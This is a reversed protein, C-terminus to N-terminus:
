YVILYKILYAFYNILYTYFQIFSVIFCFVWIIGILTPIFFGFILNPSVTSINNKGIIPLKTLIVPNKMQNTKVGHLYRNRAKFIDLDKDNKEKKPYWYDTDEEILGISSRWFNSADLTRNIIFYQFITIVLGVISLILKFGIISIDVKQTQTSILIFSAFLISNFLLFNNTRESIFRGEHMVLQVLNNYLDKLRKHREKQNDTENKIISKNM